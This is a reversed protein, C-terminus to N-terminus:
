AAGPDDVRAPGELPADDALEATAAGWDHSGSPEAPGEYAPLESRPTDGDITTGPDGLDITRAPVSGSGALMEILQDPTATAPLGRLAELATLPVLAPWGVRGDFSPRILATPDPGHGEVMSTITEPGVWAMRAPWFLVGTTGSVEGTAVEIGRVFQAVRGQDMPAPAALTVPAGALAAAMTGDPDPAIVVIPLAGGSWASDVIRRVRPVGEADALAVEPTIALIVAAVTM